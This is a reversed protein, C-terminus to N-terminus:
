KSRKKIFGLFFLNLGILLEFLYLLCRSFNEALVYVHYLLASGNYANFFENIAQAFIIRSAVKLFFNSVEMTECNYASLCPPCGLFYLTGESTATTKKKLYPPHM